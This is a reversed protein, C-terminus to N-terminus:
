NSIISKECFLYFLVYHMIELFILVSRLIVNRHWHISIISVKDKRKCIKFYYALTALKIDLLINKEKFAVELDEIKLCAMFSRQTKTDLKFLPKMVDM